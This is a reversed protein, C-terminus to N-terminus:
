NSGRFSFDPFKHHFLDTTGYNFRNKKVAITTHFM